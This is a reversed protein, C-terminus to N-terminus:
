SPAGPRSSGGQAALAAQVAEEYTRPKDDTPKVGQDASGSPVRATFLTPHAAKFADVTATLGEVEGTDTVNLEAFETARSVISPDSCGAATLASEVRTQRIVGVWKSREEAAAEKKADNIAKESESQTADRLRQLEAEATDARKKENRARVREAELAAKGGDGLPEDKTDPKAGAPKAGAAADDKTSDDAGPDGSGGDAGPGDTKFLLSLLLFPLLLLNFFSM